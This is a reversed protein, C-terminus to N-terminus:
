VVSKRDGFFRSGLKQFSNTLDTTLFWHQSQRSLQREIETHRKLYNALSQAAVPGESVIKIKPGAIQKIEKELLGYHTCGLVLTDIKKQLLPKLYKELALKAILSKEEGAEVIPVLLPCVQQFVQIRPNLKKIERLFAKSAVTGETAMVGIKRNKTALVAQEAAQIIVGLVRKQPCCKVLYGQQVRRLAESSATGCALIVLPCHNKRLLFDVAQQTFQYIVEQSRSGYPLRATDGLYLYDYQPLLRVIHKLVALGGFGSDFVGIPGQM